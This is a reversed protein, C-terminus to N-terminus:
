ISFVGGLITHRDFAEVVGYEQMDAHMAKTVKWWCTRQHEAKAKPNRVALLKRGSARRAELGADIMAKVTYPIRGAEAAVEQETRPRKGIIVIHHSELDVLAAGPIAALQKLKEHATPMNYSLTSPWLFFRNKEIRQICVHIGQITGTILKKDKM